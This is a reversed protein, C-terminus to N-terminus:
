DRDNDSFHGGRVQQCNAAKQDTIGAVLPGLLTPTKRGVGSFPFLDLKRFAQVMRKIGSEACLGSGWYIQSADLGHWGVHRTRGLPRNGEPKGM